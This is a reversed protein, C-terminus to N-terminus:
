RTWCTTRTVGSKSCRTVRTPRSGRSVGTCADGSMRTGCTPTTVCTGRSVGTCTDGSMRTGGTPTTICSSRSM